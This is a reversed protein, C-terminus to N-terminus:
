SLYICIHKHGKPQLRYEHHTYTRQIGSLCLRNISIIHFLRHVQINRWEKDQADMTFNTHPSGISWTQHYSQSLYICIHKHGKPQLRYEHCLTYTRQIGSLYLRDVSIVCFPRRVQINRQEKDHPDMTFNAHPSGISWMKVTRDLCASTFTNTDKPNLTINM